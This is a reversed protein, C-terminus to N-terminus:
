RPRVRDRLPAVPRSPWPAGRGVGVVFQVRHRPGLWIAQASEIQKVLGAVAPLRDAVAHHKERARERLTERDVSRGIMEELVEFIRDRHGTSGIISEWARLPLEVGHEVFIDRYADFIPQETDVMLGDFDFVIAKLPM